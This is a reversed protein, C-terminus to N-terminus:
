IVFGDEIAKQEITVLLLSQKESPIKSPIQGAIRLLSSEKPSFIRNTQSWELIRSWFIGGKEIVYKQAQIGNDIKQVTRADSDKRKRETKPILETKVKESAYPQKNFNEACEALMVSKKCWETV